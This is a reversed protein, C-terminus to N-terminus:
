DFKGGTITLDVSWSDLDSGDVPNELNMSGAFRYSGGLGIKLFEAINLEVSVGPEIVLFPSNEIFVNKTKFGDNTSLNVKDRLEINGVAFLVPFGLHIMKKPKFIYGTLLGAYGADAYVNEHTTNGRVSFENATGYGAVGFILNDNLIVGGSIGLQVIDEGVMQSFKSHFAGFGKVENNGLLTNPEHHIIEVQAYAYAAVLCFAFILILCRM